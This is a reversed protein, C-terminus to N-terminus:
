LRDTYFTSQLSCVQHLICVSHLVCVSFASQTLLGNSISEQSLTFLLSLLFLVVTISVSLYVGRGCAQDYELEFLRGKLYTM